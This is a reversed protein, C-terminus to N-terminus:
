GWWQCYDVVPVLSQRMAVPLARGALLHTRLARTQAPWELLQFFAPVVACFAFSVEAPSCPVVRSIQALGALLRLYVSAAAPPMIQRSYTSSYLRVELFLAHQLLTCKCFSAIM